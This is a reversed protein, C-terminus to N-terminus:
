RARRRSRSPPSTSAAGTTDVAAVQEVPVLLEDPVRRDGVEADDERGDRGPRPRLADRREDDLVAVRAEHEALAQRLEAAAAERGALQVELGAEDRVVAAEALLALAEAPQHVDEVDRAHLKGGVRDADAAGGDLM